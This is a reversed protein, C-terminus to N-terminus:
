DKIEKHEVLNFPYNLLTSFGTGAEMADDDDQEYLWNITVADQDQYKQKFQLLLFLLWKSTGTNFYKFFITIVTKKPPDQLYENVASEIPRYFRAPDEPISYGRIDLVGKVPDLIIEPTKKTGPIVLKEM